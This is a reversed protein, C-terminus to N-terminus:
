NSQIFEDFIKKTTKFVLKGKEKRSWLDGITEEYYWGKIGIYKAFDIAKILENYFDLEEKSIPFIEIEYDSFFSDIINMLENFDNTANSEKIYQLKMIADNYWKPNILKLKYMASPLQHTSLNGNFIFNLMEYVDDIKTSIRGDIISFAKKFTVKMNIIKLQKM